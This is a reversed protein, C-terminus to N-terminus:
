PPVESKLIELAHLLVEDLDSANGADFSSPDSYRKSFALLKVPDAAAAGTDQRYRGLVPMAKGCHSQGMVRIVTKHTQWRFRGSQDAIVTEFIPCATEGQYFGVVRLGTEAATAAVDGGKELREILAPISHKGFMALAVANAEAAPVSSSEDIDKVLDRMQKVYELDLEERQMALTVSDKIWYGVCLAVLGGVYPALAGLWDRLSSTRLTKVSSELSKLRSDLAFASELRLELESVRPDVERTERPPGPSGEM